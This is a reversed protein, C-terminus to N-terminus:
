PIWAGVTEKGTAPVMITSGVSLSDLSSTPGTRHHSSQWECPISAMSCPLISGSSLRSFVRRVGGPRQQGILPPMRIGPELRGIRARGGPHALEPGSDSLDVVDVAVAM